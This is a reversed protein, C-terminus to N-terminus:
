LSDRKENKLGIFASLLVGWLFFTMIGPYPQRMGVKLMNDALLLFLVVGTLGFLQPSACIKFMNRISFYVTFVILCLLPLIALFGFNYVFDMYYNHASPFEKRDPAEVHGLWFSSFSDFIGSLYYQWYIMRETRNNLGDVPARGDFLDYGLKGALFQPNVFLAVGLYVSLAVILFVIFGHWRYKRFFLNRLFYALAGIVMLGCALMSVSFSVYGGMIASLVVLGRRYVRAEESLSFLAIIFGGAFIVPVYQLHQYIGFVYVSPSLFLLGQTITSMIELPVVILLILFLVKSMRLVAKKRLGYQQGLALAFVPLIYQVLLVLKAQVVAGHIKALLLSAFLMGLFLFFVTILALRARSYEGFIVIGAYCALVSVPIPLLTLQGGSSFYEGGQYIGGSLQFFLPFFLLFAVGQLVWRETLGSSKFYFFGGRESFYFVLSLMASLLYLIALSSVGVGYYLFPICGVLLINALLDSGFVDGKTRGQLLRLRTEQAKVMVGGGMLSFGVAYWFLLDKGAWLLMGPWLLAFGVVLLGVVLSFCVLLNVLRSLIRSTNRSHEQSYALTPGLAQSFVAGLIGGIAFASFLDGAVQRGALLVIFLRFVYVSVGIVATSGFHPLLFKLSREKYLPSKFAATFMSPRICWCLPSVAWIALVWYGITMEFSLSVLVLLGCLGQTVFSRFAQQFRNEYEQECLFVEALWECARRAVLLLVMLWGSAVLGISLMFALACLPLLLFCRLRLIYASEVQKNGSLILSRANGSFSYFLAVTAGHVVGFDAALEPKGFLSLGIMVLMVAFTNVMFAAPFIFLNKMTNESLIGMWSIDAGSM